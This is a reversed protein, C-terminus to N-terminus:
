SPPRWPHSDAEGALHAGIPAIWARRSWSLGRRCQRGQRGAASLFVGAEAPGAGERWSAWVTLWLAPDSGSETRKVFHESCVM